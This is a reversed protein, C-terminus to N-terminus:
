ETVGPLDWFLVEILDSGSRQLCKGIRLKNIMKGDESHLSPVSQAKLLVSLFNDFCKYKKFINTMSILVLFM